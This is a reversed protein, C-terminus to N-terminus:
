GNPNKRGFSGDVRSASTLERDVSRQPELRRATALKRVM